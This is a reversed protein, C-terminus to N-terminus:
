AEKKKWTLAKSPCAEVQQIIRESEAGLMNIWPKAKVDFVEGLGRVCKGSHTCVDPRWIVTIEDNSYELKKEAM